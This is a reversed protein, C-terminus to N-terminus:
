DERERMSCVETHSGLMEVKPDRTYNLTARPLHFGLKLYERCEDCAAHLKAAPQKHQQVM